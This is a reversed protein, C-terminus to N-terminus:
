RAAERLRIREAFLGLCGALKEPDVRDAALVGRVLPDTLADALTLEFQCLM